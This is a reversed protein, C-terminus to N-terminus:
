SVVFDRSITSRATAASTMMREIMSPPSVALVSVTFVSHTKKPSAPASPPMARFRTEATRIPALSSPSATRGSPAPTHLTACGRGLYGSRRPNVADAQDDTLQRAAPELLLHEQEGCTQASAPELHGHDRKGPAPGPGLGQHARSDSHRLQLSM